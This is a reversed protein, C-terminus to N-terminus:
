IENSVRKCLETNCECGNETCGGKGLGGAARIRSLSGNGCGDPRDDFGVGSNDAGTKGHQAVWKYPYEAGDEAREERGSTAAGVIVM